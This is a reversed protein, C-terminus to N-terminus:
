PAVGDHQGGGYGCDAVGAYVGRVQRRLGAPTLAVEPQGRRGVVVRLGTVVALVQELEGLHVWCGCWASAWTVAAFPQTAPVGPHLRLTGVSGVVGCIEHDVAARHGVVHVRLVGDLIRVLGVVAIRVHMWALQREQPDDALTTPLVREVLVAVVHADQAAVAVQNQARGIGAAEGSRQEEGRRRCRAQRHVADEVEGAPAQVPVHVAV